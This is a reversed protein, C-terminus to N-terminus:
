GFSIASLGYGVEFANNPPLSDRLRAPSRAANAIKPVYSAAPAQWFATVPDPEIRASDAQAKLRRQRAGARCLCIPLM